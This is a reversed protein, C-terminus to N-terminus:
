GQDRVRLVVGAVALLGFIPLQWSEPVWAKVDPPLAAWVSPLVALVAMIQVSHWRWAERWDPVLRMLKM